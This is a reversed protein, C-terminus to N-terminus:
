HLCFPCFEIQVHFKVMAQGASEQKLKDQTLHSLFERLTEPIWKGMVDKSSPNYENCYMKDRFNTKILLAASRLINDAEKNVNDSRQRIGEDIIYKAMDVLYIMTAKTSINSFVIHSKYHNTLLVKLYQERSAKIDGLHEQVKARFEKLSHVTTENELWNCALWFAKLQQRNTRRGKRGMLTRVKDPTRHTKFLLRCTPHYRTHAAVLDICSQVRAKM